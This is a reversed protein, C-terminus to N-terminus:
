EDGLGTASEVLGLGPAHDVVQCSPGKEVAGRLDTRVRPPNREDGASTLSAHRELIHLIRSAMSVRSRRSPIVATSMGKISM